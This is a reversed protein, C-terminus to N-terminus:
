AARAMAASLFREHSDYVTFLPFGDPEEASSWTLHVIAIRGRALVFAVDDCDLRKALPLAMNQYLPHMPALERSLEAELANREDESAIPTWPFDLHQILNEVAM